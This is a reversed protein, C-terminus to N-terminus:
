ALLGVRENEPFVPKPDARQDYGHVDVNLHCTRCLSYPSTYEQDLANHPLEAFVGAGSADLCCASVRGDAMLFARGDVIWDCKMHPAASVHWAVQGAWDISALSPDASYGACLGHRKLVEIAPGAKEPRHMSVWIRPRFPKIAVALEDTILLGNTAMTVDGREGIADRALAVYRVFDPHMTSEGIGALNVERQTGRAAFHRVWDMASLYVDESMDM